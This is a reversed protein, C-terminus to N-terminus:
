NLNSTSKLSPIKLTDCAPAGAAEVSQPPSAERGEDVQPPASVNATPEVHAAPAALAADQADMAAASAFGGAHEYEQLAKSVSMITEMITPENCM